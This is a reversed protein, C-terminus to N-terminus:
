SFNKIFEIAGAPCLESCCYCNVCKDTMIEPYGNKMIIAEGPCVRRCLGCQKCENTDIVPKGLIMKMFRKRVKEEFYPIRKFEPIVRDYADGTIELNEPEVNTIGRRKGEIYMPLKVVDYGMYDACLYDLALSDASCAIVGANRPIGHTPGIGEMALIGDIIAFDPVRVLYVDLLCNMFKNTNTQTHMQKRQEPLVAGFMNKVAGTYYMLAHTKLKAMSIVIDAELVEEAYQIKQYMEGEVTQASYRSFSILKVDEEHAVKTLGCIDFCSQISNPGDGIIPVGGMEKILRVMARVLAPHTTAAQSEPFPGAVNVKLLVKQGNKVLKCGVTREVGDGLIRVLDMDYSLGKKFYILMSKIVEMCDSIIFSVSIILHIILVSAIQM